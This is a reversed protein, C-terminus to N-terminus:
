ESHYHGYKETQSTCLYTLHRKKQSKEVYIMKQVTVITIYAKLAKKNIAHREGYTTTLLVLTFIAVILM